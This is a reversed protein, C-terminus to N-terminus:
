DNYGLIGRELLAEARRRDGLSSLGKLELVLIIADSPQDLDTTVYERALLQVGWCCSEYQVGFLRELTAAERLSYQWRGLLTWRDDVPLLFSAEANELEARRYRHSLSLRGRGRGHLSARTTFRETSSEHPDWQLDSVLSFGRGPRVGLGAVLSSSDRDARAARGVEPADFYQIQGLSASLVEAGSREDIFRTTVATTLQNADGVRDAGTFRHERFLQSFSFDLERTDFLPLEDQDRHPTYLYFLRPELTQVWARDALQVSREFFLGADTSFVPVTRSPDESAGPAVDDLQYRTHRLSLRPVVFGSLNRYPLSVSPTLDARTGTPRRDSADFRVLEGSFGYNLQGNRERGRHDLRVQPLRGYAEGGSLTQFDQGRILLQWDPSTYYLDARRPLHTTSATDLDNGFDNFYASDSVYNLDIDTTWRAGLSGRHQWGLASRDDEYVSDSPLWTAQVEGRHHETLYRTETDLMLGRRSMYRPTLTADLNPAINWYYPVSLETGGAESSGFTPFLFGSMRADTIPFRIYPLYLLPWDMFDLVVGRGTGQGSTRDLTVERARLQWDPADTPCTTFSARELRTLSEGELRVVEANGSAHREALRYRAADVRGRGTQMNLEAERGLLTLGDQFLQVAGEARVQETNPHYRARDAELQREGQRMIVDGSFVAAVDQQADATDAWVRILEPDPVTLPPVPAPSPWREPEPPCLAWLGTEQAGAGATLGLSGVLLLASALRAARPHRVRRNNDNDSVSSASVGPFGGLIACICRGPWPCGTVVGAHRCARGAM